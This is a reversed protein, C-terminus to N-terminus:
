EGAGKLKLICILDGGLGFARSLSINIKTFASNFAYKRAILTDLKEIFFIKAQPYRAFHKRVDNLSHYRWTGCKSSFKTNYVFIFTGNEKLHRLLQSTVEDSLPFHDTNYLSCSRVFVCDFTRSTAFSHIDALAFTIGLEGYAAEAARIATESIDIGHVEMGCKHLLYSLFGQGCGVDLVSSGRRLGSFSLLSSIYPSYLWQRYRFPNKASYIINYHDRVESM